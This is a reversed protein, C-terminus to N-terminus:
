SRAEFYLSIYVIYLSTIDRYLSNISKISWLNYIIYTPLGTVIPKRFEDYIQRLIALIREKSSKKLTEHL